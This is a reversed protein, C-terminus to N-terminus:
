QQSTHETFFQFKSNNGVIFHSITYRIKKELDSVMEKLQVNQAEKSDALETTEKLDRNLLQIRFNANELKFQLTGINDTIHETNVFNFFVKYM